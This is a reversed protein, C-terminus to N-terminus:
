AVGTLCIALVRLPPIFCHRRSAVAALSWCSPSPPQSSSATGALAGLSLKARSRALCSFTGVPPVVLVSRLRRHQLLWLVWELCAPASIKFFPSAQADIVPGLLLHSSFAASARPGGTRVELFDYSMAPPRQPSPLAPGTEEDSLEDESSPAELSGQLKTYWGKQGATQWLHEAVAPRVDTTCVAGKELSADSCGVKCSIPAAVNSVMVPALAALLVLDQRAAPGLPQLHSGGTEPTKKGVAFLPGLAAILCRRYLLATVWCGALVSALEESVFRNSAVELSAHALALRRPAPLGVLVCGAQVSAPSADIQAGAVTFVRQSFVDKPDSGEVGEKRYAEKAKRLLREGQSVVPRASAPLSGEGQDPGRAVAECSICFLDDIVLGTWPGRTAVPCRNLLRGGPPDGLVGASRLLGEHGSCAFEVGAHDGQFLSKFAGHVKLDASVLVSSPRFSGPPDCAELYARDASALFVGAAGPDWSLGQPLFSTGRREDVGTPSDCSGPPLLRKPRRLVWVACPDM